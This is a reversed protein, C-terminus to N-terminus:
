SRREQYFVISGTRGRSQIDGSEKYVENGRYEDPIIDAPEGELASVYGSTVYM